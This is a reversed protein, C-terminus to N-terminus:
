RYIGWISKKKSNNVVNLIAPVAFVMILALIVLVTLVEVLTFGRNEKM